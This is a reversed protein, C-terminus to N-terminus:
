KIQDDGVTYCHDGWIYICVHEYEPNDPVYSSIKRNRWKIHIPVGLEQCLHLMATPTFRLAPDQMEPEDAYIEQTISMLLEAIQEQSWPSEGDIKIFKPLQYSM